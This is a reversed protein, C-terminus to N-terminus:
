KEDDLRSPTTIQAWALGAMFMGFVIAVLILFLTGSM